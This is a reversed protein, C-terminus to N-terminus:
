IIAMRGADTLIAGFYPQKAAGDKPANMPRTIKVLGPFRREIERICMAEGRGWVDGGDKVARMVMKMEATLGAYTIPMPKGKPARGGGRTAAYGHHGSM